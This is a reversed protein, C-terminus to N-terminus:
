DGLLREAQVRLLAPDLLLDKLERFEGLLEELTQELRELRDSSPAEGTIPILQDTTTGFAQAISELERMFGTSEGREWRAYTRGAVGLKDAAQQQTLGALRRATRIKEATEQDTTM